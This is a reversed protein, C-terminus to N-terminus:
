EKCRAAHLLNTLAAQLNCIAFQLNCIGKLWLAYVPPRDVHHEGEHEPRKVQYPLTIEARM